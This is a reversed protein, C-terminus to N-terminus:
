DVFSLEEPPPMALPIKGLLLASLPVLIWPAPYRPLEINTIRSVNDRGHYVNRRLLMYLLMDWEPYGHIAITELSPCNRPYRLLLECFYSAGLPAHRGNFSVKTLSPFSCHPYCYGAYRNMWNLTLLQTFDSGNVLVIDALTTDLSLSHVSPAFSRDLQVGTSNWSKADSKHQIRLSSLNPMNVYALVKQDEAVLIRLSSCSITRASDDQVTGDLNLRNLHEMDQIFRVLDSAFIHSRLRLARIGVLSDSLA